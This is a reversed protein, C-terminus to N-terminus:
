DNHAFLRFASTFQQQNHKYKDFIPHPSFSLSPVSTISNSNIDEVPEKDIKPIFM